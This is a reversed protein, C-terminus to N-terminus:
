KSHKGACIVDDKCMKVWQKQSLHPTFIGKIQICHETCYSLDQEKPSTDLHKQLLRQICALHQFITSSTVPCESVPVVYFIQKPLSKDPFIEDHDRQRDNGPGSNIGANDIEPSELVEHMSLFAGM